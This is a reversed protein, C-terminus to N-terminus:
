QEESMEVIDESILDLEEINERVTEGNYFLNTAEEFSNAEICCEKLVKRVYKITYTNM